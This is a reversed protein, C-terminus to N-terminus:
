KKFKGLYADSSKIQIKFVSDISAVKAKENEFYQVAAANSKGTVDPEFEHMWDDMREEANTLNKLMDLMAAKEKLTDIDPFKSKLSKMNKMLDKIKLENGVIKGQDAM